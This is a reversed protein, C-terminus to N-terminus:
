PKEQLNRLADLTADRNVYVNGRGAGLTVTVIIGEGSQAVDQQSSVIAICKALMDAEAAAIAAEADAFRVWDGHSDHSSFVEHWTHAWNTLVEMSWRQMETM